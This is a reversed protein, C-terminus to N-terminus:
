KPTMEEYVNHPLQGIGAINDQKLREVLFRYGLIDAPVTFLKGTESYLTIRSLCRIKNLVTIYYRANVYKVDNFTFTRQRFVTKLTIIKGNVQVQWFFRSLEILFIIVALLLYMVSQDSSVLTYAIVCILPIVAAWWADSKLRRIIFQNASMGQEAASIRKKRKKAGTTSPYVSACFVFVIISIGVFVGLIVLLGIM